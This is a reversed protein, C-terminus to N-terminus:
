IWQVPVPGCVWTILVYKEGRAVPEACHYYRSPFIVVKGTEPRVVYPVTPFSTQGGDFDANLYCVVTFYRNAFAGGGDQHTSYHGGPQYHVLQTGVLERLEVGGIERIIPLVESRVRAEFQDLVAAGKASDLIRANRTSTDQLTEAAGDSDEVTIEAEHWSDLARVEVLVAACEEAAYLTSAYVGHCEQAYARPTLNAENM